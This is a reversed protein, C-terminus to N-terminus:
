NGQKRGKGVPCPQAQEIQNGPTLHADAIQNLYQPLTLGLDRPM